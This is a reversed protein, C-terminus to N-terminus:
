LEASEQRTIGGDEDLWDGYDELLITTFGGVTGLLGASLTDSSFFLHIHHYRYIIHLLYELLDAPNYIFIRRPYERSM